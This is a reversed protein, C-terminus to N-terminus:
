CSDADNGFTSEIRIGSIYNAPASKVRRVSKEDSENEEEKVDITEDKSEPESPRNFINNSSIRFM